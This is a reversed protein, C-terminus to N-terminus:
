GLPPLTRVLYYHLHHRHGSESMKADTEADFKGSNIPQELLIRNVGGSSLRALDYVTKSVAMM